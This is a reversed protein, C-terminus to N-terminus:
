EDVAEELEAMEMMRILTLKERRNQCDKKKMKESFDDDTNKVFGKLKRKSKKFKKKAGTKDRYMQEQM